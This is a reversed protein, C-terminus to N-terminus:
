AENLLRVVRSALKSYEIASSIDIDNESLIKAEDKLYKLKELMEYAGRGIPEYDSLRLRLLQLNISKSEDPSMNYRVALEYLAHEVSDWAKMIAERPSTEALNKLDVDSPGSSGEKIIPLIIKAERSVAEVEERFDIETGNHKFKIVRDLLKSLNDRFLFVIVFITIPWALSDILAAIFNLYDM